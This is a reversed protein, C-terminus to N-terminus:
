RSSRASDWSVPLGTVSSVTAHLDTHEVPGGEFGRHLRPLLLTRDAAVGAIIGALLAVLIM